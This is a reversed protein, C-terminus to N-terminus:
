SKAGTVVSTQAVPEDNNSAKKEIPDGKNVGDRTEKQDWDSRSYRCLETPKSDDATPNGTTAVQRTSAQYFFASTVTRDNM